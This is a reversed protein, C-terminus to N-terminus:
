AAGEELWRLIEAPAYRLHRGLRYAKPGTGEYRWAYLTQVPIGLFESVQHVTWLPEIQSNTLALGGGGNTAAITKSKRATTM